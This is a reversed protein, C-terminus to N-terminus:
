HSVQMGNNQASNATGRCDNSETHCCIPKTGREARLFQQRLGQM